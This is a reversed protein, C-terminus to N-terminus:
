SLASPPLSADEHWKQDSFHFKAPADTKENVMISEQEKKREKKEEKKKEEEEKKNEWEEEEEEEEEDGGGWKEKLIKRKLSRVTHNNKFACIQFM